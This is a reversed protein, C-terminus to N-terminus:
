RRSDYKKADGDAKPRHAQQQTGGLAAASAAPVFVSPRHPYLFFARNWRAQKRAEKGKCWWKGKNKNRICDYMVAVWEAVKQNERFLMAMNKDWELVADYERQVVAFETGDSLVSPPRGLDVPGGSTKSTKEASNAIDEPNFRKTRKLPTATAMDDASPKPKSQSAAPRKLTM